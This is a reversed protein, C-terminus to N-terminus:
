KKFHHLIIQFRLMSILNYKYVSRLACFFFKFSTSEGAKANAQIHPAVVSGVRLLATNRRRLDVPEGFFSCNSMWLPFAAYGFTYNCLEGGTFAVARGSPAADTGFKKRTLIM